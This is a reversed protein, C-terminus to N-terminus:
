MDGMENSCGSLIKHLTCIVLSRLICSRGSGGVEERKPGFISRLVRNECMGFRQEERRTLYSNEYM